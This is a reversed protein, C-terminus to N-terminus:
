AERGIKKVGGNRSNEKFLCCVSKSQCWRKVQVAQAEGDYGVRGLGETNLWRTLDELLIPDYM